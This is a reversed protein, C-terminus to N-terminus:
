ESTWPAEADPLSRGLNSPARPLSCNQRGSTRVLPRESAFTSYHLFYKRCQQSKEGGVPSEPDGSANHGRTISRTDPEAITVLRNKIDAQM